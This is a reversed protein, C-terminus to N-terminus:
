LDGEPDPIYVGLEAARKQIFAIYDSFEQKNLKSSRRVPKLRKRGLGELTEWGSWEGLFYEHVDEAEWGELHDLLTKYVVGFLYRNQNDSRKAKFPEVVVRWARDVPLSQIFAAARQSDPRGAPLTITQM